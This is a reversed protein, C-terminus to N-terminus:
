EAAENGLNYESVSPPVPHSRSDTIFVACRPAMYYAVGTSYDPATRIRFGNCSSPVIWAADGAKAYQAATMEIQRLIVERGNRVVSLKGQPARFNLIPPLAPKKDPVEYGVSQMLDRWDDGSMEIYTGLGIHAPLPFECEVSWLDNDLKKANPKDAGHTRVFVQLVAPTIEGGFRAVPGLLEREYSLRNLIHTIWRAAR